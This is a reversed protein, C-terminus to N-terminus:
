NPKENESEKAELFAQYLEAMGELDAWGDSEKVYGFLKNFIDVSFVLTSVALIEQARIYKYTDVIEYAQVPNMKAAKQNLLGLFNLFFKNKGNVSTAPVTVLKTKM